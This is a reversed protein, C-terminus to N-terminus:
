IAVSQNTFYRMLSKNGCAMIHAEMPEVHILGNPFVIAVLDDTRRAKRITGVNFGTGTTHKYAAKVEVFYSTTGKTIILDPGKVKNNLEVNYGQTTFFHAAKREASRGVATPCDVLDDVHKHGHHRSDLRREHTGCEYCLTRFWRKGNGDLYQYGQSRCLFRGKIRPKEINCRRCVRTM